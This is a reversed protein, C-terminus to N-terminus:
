TQRATRGQGRPDPQAGRTVRPAGRVRRDSGRRAEPAPTQAVVGILASAVQVRIQAQEDGTFVDIIRNVAQAADNTHLTALVLHGTESINLAAQISEPDRMEGVLLV